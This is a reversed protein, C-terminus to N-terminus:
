LVTVGKMGDKILNIFLMRVNNHLGIGIFLGQLQQHFRAGCTQVLLPIVATHAEIVGSTQLAAGTANQPQPRRQFLPFVRAAGKTHLETVASTPKIRLATSVRMAFFCSYGM